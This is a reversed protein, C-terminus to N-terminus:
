PLQPVPPLAQEPHLVSAYFPWNGSSDSSTATGAGSALVNGHDVIEVTLPLPTPQSLPTTGWIDSYFGYCGTADVTFERLGSANVSIPTALTKGSLDTCNIVIRYAEDSGPTVRFTLLSYPPQGPVYAVRRSDHLWSYDAGDLVIPAQKFIESSPVDLSFLAANLQRAGSSNSARGDDRAIKYLAEHVIFAARDNLSLARYVARSVKLTGDTEYYGVAELACGEPVVVGFDGGLDPPVNLGTGEPLFQFSNLTQIAVQRVLPAYYDFGALKAIAALIQAEPPTTASPITYGYRVRGEYLDLIQASVIRHNQDRCVAAAGGGSSGAGAFAL